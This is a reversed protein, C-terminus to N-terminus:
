GEVRVQTASPGKPGMMVEFSVKNGEKIEDIVNNVHVFISEQTEIDKIFGYGKDDNFFTIFGKRVPDGQGKEERKPTGIEINELKIEKKKTPDPPTTSLNGDEDVYAITGAHSGGRNEKRALM